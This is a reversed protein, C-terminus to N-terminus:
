SFKYLNLFKYWTVYMLLLMSNEIQRSKAPLESRM